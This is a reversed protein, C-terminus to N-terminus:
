YSEIGLERKIYRQVEDAISPDAFIYIRCTNGLSEILQRIIISYNSADQLEWYGNIKEAIPIFGQEEDIIQLQVEKKLVKHPDVNRPALRNEKEMIGLEKFIEAQKEREIKISDFVVKYPKRFLINNALPIENSIEKLIKLFHHDDYKLLLEPNSSVEDCSPYGLKEQAMKYNNFIYEIMAEFCCKTKHHYVQQYMWYRSLVYEELAHIGKERDVAITEVTEENKRMKAVRLTALIRHYDFIGYKVGCYYSDRLLYDIRDVGLYGVIIDKQLPPGIGRILAGVKRPSVCLKDELVSAIQNYNEVIIASYDEHSTETGDSSCVFELSHSFPTHGIDHLLAAMRIVNRANQLDERQRDDCTYSPTDILTSLVRDAIHLAGLSHGFRSHEAGHYVLHSFGLQRIRRLRQFLPTDVIQVEADGLEIFGHVPDRFLKLIWQITM